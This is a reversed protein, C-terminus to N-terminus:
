SGATVLVWCVWIAWCAVPPHFDPRQPQVSLQQLRQITAKQGHTVNPWIESRTPWLPQQASQPHQMLPVNYQKSDTTPKPQTICHQRRSLTLLAVPTRLLAQSSKQMVIQQPGHASHWIALWTSMWFSPQENPAGGRM